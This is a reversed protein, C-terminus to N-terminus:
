NIRVKESRLCVDEYWVEVTWEGAYFNIIDANGWGDLDITINKDRWVRRTKSFTYGEPSKETDRMVAGSPFIIKIFFTIERDILSDV